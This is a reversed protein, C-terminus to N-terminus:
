VSFSTLFVTTGLAALTAVAIALRRERGSSAAAGVLLGVLSLGLLLVGM